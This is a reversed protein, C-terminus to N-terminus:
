MYGRYYRSRRGKVDIISNSEVVNVPHTEQAERHAEARARALKDRLLADDTTGRKKYRQFHLSATAVIYEALREPLDTFTQLEVVALNIDATFTATADEVNYLNGNRTTLKLSSSAKIPQFQLVDTMAITGSSPTFTKDPDTNSPWGTLRLSSAIGPGSRQVRKNYRDLFTEAEAEESTGGTDLAAVPPQGIAELIENVAALTTM